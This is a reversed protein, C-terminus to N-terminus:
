DTTSPLLKEDCNGSHLTRRGRVLASVGRPGSGERGRMRGLGSGGVASAERSLRVRM